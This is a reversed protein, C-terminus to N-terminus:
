IRVAVMWRTGHEEVRMVEGVIVIRTPGGSHQFIVHFTTLHRYHPFRQHTEFRLGTESVDLTTGAGFSLEVPLGVYYRPTGRREKGRYPRTRERDGGLRRWAPLSAVLM